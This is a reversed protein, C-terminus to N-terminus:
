TDGFSVQKPIFYDTSFEGNKYPLTREFLINGRKDVKQPSLGFGLNYTKHVSGAVVKINVKGSGSGGKIRGKLTSCDLAKITDMVQTIEIGMQPKRMLLVPEGLLGYKLDNLNNFNTSAGNKAERLAEGVTVVLGSSDPPFLLFYFANALAINPTPYSERTASVAAIAGVGKQKVFQESMGESTLSEFRGVTCSFANVMPTRGENRMRSIADNTQLLVEDAWQNSAGHGVYSILLSGRNFYSLLDQAAEPKHFASNLPYDLLYVKDVTTGKQNGSILKGMEDSDTTHGGIIPDIDDRAGRQIHDDAAFVVRARWDGALAPNEYDSIKKLYAAAEGTTQVPIRGTAIDLVGGSSGLDGFDLTGYFDDSAIEEQPTTGVIFEYPPILNPPPSTMLSAKINRYDYHGDGFFLAFKLKGFGSASGWGHYAYRLFDRIAVPSMRGSSFQRYVDEVLVVETKVQLARKPSNRYDRLALAQELLPRATLIIYEPFRGDGNTLDRLASGSGPRSDLEMARAPLAAPTRFVLYKADADKALSDTFIGQGDLTMLRTAVGDEVRVCKLGAGAEVKFSVAKGTAEPYIWLPKGTFFHSSRYVVSYGEFRMERGRWNLNDLQFEPTTKSTAPKLPGTWVYWSGPSGTPVRFQDLTDGSGGYSATFISDSRSAYVYFGLFISDDPGTRALNPLTATEESFLQIRSLTVATDSYLNCRGKWHWFWDFGTEEDKHSSPDCAATQLDKEARLYTYSSTLPAGAVPSAPSEPLRLGSEASEGFDLYYYNEFSYPDASYEYRIQTTAEPLRKWISTGHGFFLISDDGDFTGNDNRDVMRIPIERLTGSRIDASDMRRVLTDNIGTFLRLNKVKAANIEGTVKALDSFSLGYVRDEDLNEVTRDGVKIRIFRNGLPVPVAGRKSRARFNGSPSAYLYAGGIPNKVANRFSGELRLSAPRALADSFEVQVRIRKLITLTRTELSWLALPVEVGRVPAGRMFQLGFHRATLVRAQRYLEADPHYESTSPTPTHPYPAIGGPVPRTESELVHLTVLPPNPGSLVDFRYVPLDPAGPRGSLHCGQCSVKMGAVSDVPTISPDPLNLELVLRGPIDEIVREFPRNAFAPAGALFAPVFVLLWVPFGGLRKGIGMM